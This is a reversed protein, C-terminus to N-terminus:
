VCLHAIIYITGQKETLCETASRDLARSRNEGGFRIAPEFRAPPCM